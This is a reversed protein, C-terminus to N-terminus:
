SSAGPHYGGYVLIKNQCWMCLIVLAPFSVLCRTGSYLRPFLGALLLASGGESTSQGSCLGEKAWERWVRLGAASGPPGLTPFPSQEWSAEGPPSQGWTWDDGPPHRARWACWGEVHVVQAAPFPNGRLSSARRPNHPASFSDLLVARVQAEFSLCSQGPLLFHIFDCWASM